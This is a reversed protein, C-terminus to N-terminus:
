SYHQLVIKRLKLKQMECNPPSTIEKAKGGYVQGTSILLLLSLGAVFSGM